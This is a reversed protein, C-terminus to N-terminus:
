RSTNGSSVPQKRPLDGPRGRGPSLDGLYVFAGILDLADHHSAGQEAALDVIKNGTRQGRTEM